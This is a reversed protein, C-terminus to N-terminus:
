VHARGIVLNSLQDIKQDEQVLDDLVNEAFDGLESVLYNAQDRFGRYALKQHHKTIARTLLISDHKRALNVLRSTLGHETAM